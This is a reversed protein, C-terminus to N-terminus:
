YDILEPGSDQTNTRQNKRKSFLSNDAKGIKYAFNLMAVRSERSRSGETRYYDGYNIYEFKRMAFVDTVNLSLSGKGNWIEQKLGVDIGSMGKIEGNVTTMPAMYNGTLQFSTNKAVRLSVNLRSSWQTSNTQYDSNVNSGNIKSQYINFSGMVSGLKEFTYRIILEGGTNESSSFNTTTMTGIGTNPDVTRYRSILDDTRRYFVSTTVNWAKVNLSNSLELANTYEPRLFPNGQRINLSDSYDVFPNLSRSDPRNVRRSYSLQLDSKSSLPYKLFASPFFSIYDNKYKENISQSEISSFTQEARIGFNYDLKKIKSTFM